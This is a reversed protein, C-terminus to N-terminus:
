AAPTLCLRQLRELVATEIAQLRAAADPVRIMSESRDVLVIVHHRDPVDTARAHEPYAAVVACVLCARALHTRVGVTHEPRLYITTFDYTRNSARVFSHWSWSEPTM